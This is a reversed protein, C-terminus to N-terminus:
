TVHPSFANVQFLKILIKRNNKLLHCLSVWHQSRGTLVVNIPRESCQTDTLKHVHFLIKHTCYRMNNIHKQVWCWLLSHTSYGNRKAAVDDAISLPHSLSIRLWFVSFCCFSPLLFLWSLTIFSSHPSFDHQKMTWVASSVRLPLFLLRLFSTSNSSQSDIGYQYLKYSATNLKFHTGKSVVTSITHWSPLLSNVKHLFM